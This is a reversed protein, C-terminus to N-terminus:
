RLVVVNGHTFNGAGQVAVRRIDGSNNVTEYALAENGSLFAWLIASGLCQLKGGLTAICQIDEEVPEGVCHAVVVKGFGLSLLEM